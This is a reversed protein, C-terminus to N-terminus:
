LSLGLRGALAEARAAFGDLRLARFGALADRLHGTAEEDAGRDHLAEALHLLTVEREPRIAECTAVAQRLCAEAEAHKGLARHALGVLRQARGVMTPLRGQLSLELARVAEDRAAVAHGQDLLATGLNIAAYARMYGLGSLGEFARACARLVDIAEATRGAKM